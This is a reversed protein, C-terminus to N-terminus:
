SWVLNKRYFTIFLYIIRMIQNTNKEMLTKYGITVCAAYLKWGRQVLWCRFDLRFEIRHLFTTSTQYEAM